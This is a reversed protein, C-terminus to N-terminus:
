LVDTFFASNVPVEQLHARFASDRKLMLSKQASSFTSMKIYFDDVDKCAQLCCIPLTELSNELYACVGM